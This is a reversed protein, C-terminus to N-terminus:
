GSPSRVPRERGRTPRTKPPRLPPKLNFPGGAPLPQAGQVWKPKRAAGKARWSLRGILLFRAACASMKTTWIECKKRKTGSEPNKESWRSGGVGSWWVHHCAKGTYSLPRSRGKCRTPQLMHLTPSPSPRTPQPCAPQWFESCGFRGNGPLLRGIKCDGVLVFGHVTLEAPKTQQM